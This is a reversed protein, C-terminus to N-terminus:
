LCQHKTRGIIHEQMEPSLLHFKQSFGSVRVALNRYNEPHKQADRLTKVDVTNFQVNSLGEAAAGLLLSTLADLNKDSFLKPDVEVIASTTGPTRRTPLRSISRLLATLGNYDRGQMPSVSYAIIEGRRRGDPSAASHHGHDIMWLFTFPQAHYDHGHERSLRQLTDCARNTIAVALSDVGDKDNGFKDARRLFAVRVAEDPFDQELIDRIEELTYAKEEFVFRRIVELSDALNPIGGLMVQYYDYKAGRANFDRGSALCGETLLSKYPKPSVSGDCYKVVQSCTLELIRDVQLLVAEFFEDFTKFESLEGTKVGHAMEPYMMSHGNKLAYEMAKLLNTEGTVAHPNSRGPVTTEVCGLQTYDRADRPDIGAEILAPIMVGDNFFFPVGKKVNGVVELARRLFARDTNEDFRVSLCRVFDLAETADLMMYSLANVGSEGEPTVGGICSQQVDYDRYLKLWLCCIWEFAEEETIRGEKLDREYYPYLIQDLRGLSNANICDEWVNVLHAFWLAQVAEPFTRAPHRPVRKCNDRIAILDRPDHDTDGRQLLEEAYAAYKDGLTMAARCIEAAAEYLPLDGNKRRHEEVEALLGEFGLKLVKEYGLVSHNNSICRGIAAWERQADREEKTLFSDDFPVVSMSYQFFWSRYHPDTAFYEEIEEDSIGNKRMLERHEPTDGPAFAEPYEGDGFHFGAICEGPILYPHFSRIVHGTAHAVTLAPDLDRARYGGIAYYVARQVCYNDQHSKNHVLEERLLRCRESISRM